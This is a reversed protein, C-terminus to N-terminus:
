LYDSKQVPNPCGKDFLSYFLHKIHTKLPKEYYKWVFSDEGPYEHYLFKYQSLRGRGCFWECFSWDWFFVLPIWPAKQLLPEWDEGMVAISTGNRFFYGYSYGQIPYVDCPKLQPHSGVWYEFAFRKTGYDHPRDVIYKQNPMPFVSGDNLAFAYDVMADMKSAFESPRILKQIYSCDATWVNGSFHTTPLPAFRSACVSCEGIPMAQCEDSFVAKTLMRRMATNEPTPHFSGKNHMYTVQALPHDECYDFVRELTLGEDGEPVAQLLQCSTESSTKQCIREMAETASTDGIVNYYISSKQVFESAASYYGLQEEVLGLAYERKGADEPTQTPPVYINYFIARKVNSKRSEDIGLRFDDPLAVESATSRMQLLNFALAFFCLPAVLLTRKRIFMGKKSHVPSAEPSSRRLDNRSRSAVIPLVM